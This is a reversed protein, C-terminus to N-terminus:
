INERETEEIKAENGLRTSESKWSFQCESCEILNTHENKVVLTGNKTKCWPCRPWRARGGVTGNSNMWLDRRIESEDRGGWVGYLQETELAFRLCRKQVPCGNCFTQALEREVPSDAFFSESIVHDEVSNSGLLEYCNGEAKWGTDSLPDFLKNVYDSM